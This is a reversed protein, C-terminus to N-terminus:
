AAVPRFDAAMRLLRYFRQVFLREYESAEVMEYYLAEISEMLFSEEGDFVILPPIGDVVKAPLLLNDLTCRLIM